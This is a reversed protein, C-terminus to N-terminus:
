KSTLSRYFNPDEKQVRRRETRTPLYFVKGDCPADWMTAIENPVPFPTNYDGVHLQQRVKHRIVRNVSSRWAKMGSSPRGCMPGGPLKTSHSM